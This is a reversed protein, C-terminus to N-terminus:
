QWGPNNPLLNANKSTESFPIPILYMKETFVIPNPDIALYQYTFTGDANKTIFVGTGKKWTISFWCGEM